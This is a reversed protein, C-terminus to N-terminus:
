EEGGGKRKGLLMRGIRAMETLFGRNFVSVVVLVIIILIFFVWLQNFPNGFWDSIGEGLLSFFDYSVVPTHPELAPIQGTKYYVTWQGVVFVDVMFHMYASPYKYGYNINPTGWTKPTFTGLNIRTWYENRFIAPDLNAGQYSLLKSELGIDNGGRTYYIGLPAGTSEPSIDEYATMEPDVKVVTNDKTVGGYAVPEKLAIYAPAFYVSDPNQSFYVFSKPILKLWLESSGYNTNTYRAGLGWIGDYYGNSELDNGSLYLNMAWDMRYRYMEYQKYQTMISGNQLTIQRVPVRWSYTDMPTDSDRTMTQTEAMIDPMGRDRGDPDLDMSYGFSKIAPTATNHSAVSNPPGQETASWWYNSFYLSNFQVDLGQTGSLYGISASYNTQTFTFFVIIAILGLGILYKKKKLLPQLQRMM